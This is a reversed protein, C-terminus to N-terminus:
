KTEARSDLEKVLADIGDQLEKIKSTVQKPKNKLANLSEICGESDRIMEVCTDISLDKIDVRAGSNGTVFTVQEIKIAKNIQMTTIERPLNQPQPNKSSFATAENTPAFITYGDAFHEFIYRAALSIVVLNYPTSSKFYGLISELRKWKVKVSYKDAFCDFRNGENFPWNSPLSTATRNTFERVVELVAQRLDENTKSSENVKTVFLDDAEREIIERYEQKTKM